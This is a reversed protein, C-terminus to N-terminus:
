NKYSVFHLEYSDKALKKSRIGYAYNRQIYNLEEHQGKETYKIWFVHVPDTENLVGNKLNLEYILTSINPDRQLYFLQNPIGTPVPFKLDKQAQLSGASGLGLLMLWGILFFSQKLFERM